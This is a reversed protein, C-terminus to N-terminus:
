IIEVLKYQIATNILEINYESTKTKIVKGISIIREYSDDNLFHLFKIVMNGDKSPLISDPEKM